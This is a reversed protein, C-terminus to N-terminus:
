VREDIVGAGSSPPQRDSDTTSSDSGSRAPKRKKKPPQQQRRDSQSGVQHTRAPNTIPDIAASISANHSENPLDVNM